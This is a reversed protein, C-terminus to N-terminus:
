SAHQAHHLARRHPANVDKHVRIHSIYPGNEHRYYSRLAFDERYLSTADLSALTPSTPILATHYPWERLLWDIADFLVSRPKRRRECYGKILDHVSFMTWDDSTRLSLLSRVTETVSAAASAASLPFMTTSAGSPSCYEDILLLQDRAWYRLGYMIATKGIRSSYRAARGTTGNRLVVERTGDSSRRYWWEVSTSNHRFATAPISTTQPPVFLDFFLSRCQENRLVLGAFRDGAGAHLSQDGNPPPPMRLLECVDPDDTNAHLRRGARILIRLRLLTNRYHYLTTPAPRPNRPTLTLGKTLVLDNIEKATLGQPSDAVASLIRHLGAFSVSRMWYDGQRPRDLSPTGSIRIADMSMETQREETM